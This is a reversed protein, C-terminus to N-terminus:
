SGPDWDSLAAGYADRAEEVEREAARRERAQRKELMALKKEAAAVERRVSSSERGHRLELEAL